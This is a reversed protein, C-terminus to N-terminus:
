CASRTSSSTASAVTSRRARTTATRGGKETTKVSQSDMIGASPNRKRGVSERLDGHLQDHVSEWTGDKKWTSFYYYLAQWKPLDHPVLRWACGSRLVYRVGNLIERREYKVPRGGPKPPPILDKIVAYEEDKLDTPYRNRSPM